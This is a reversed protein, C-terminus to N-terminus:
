QTIKDILGRYAGGFYCRYSSYEWEGPSSVLGARVPNDHIYELIRVLDFENRICRDYYRPQWLSGIDGVSSNYKRAFNGKLHQMIKSIDATKSPQIVCHVHDHMLAFGYLKFSLVCKQFELCTIFFRCAREDTFLPRRDKTVSTVSYVAGPELYHRM